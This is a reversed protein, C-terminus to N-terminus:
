KKPRGTGYAWTAVVENGNGAVHQGREHVARTCVYTPEGKEGVENQCIESLGLGDPTPDAEGALVTDEASEEGEGEPYPVWTGDVLEFLEAEGGNFYATPTVDVIPTQSAMLQAYGKAAADKPGEAEDVTVALWVTYSDM